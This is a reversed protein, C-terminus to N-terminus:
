IDCITVHIIEVNQRLTLNDVVKVDLTRNLVFFIIKEANDFRVYFSTTTQKM